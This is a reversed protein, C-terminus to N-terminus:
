SSKLGPEASGLKPLWVAYSARDQGVAELSVVAEPSTEGPAFLSELNQFVPTGSAVDQGMTGSVFTRYTFLPGPFFRERVRDLLASIESLITSPANPIAAVDAKMKLSIKRSRAQYSLLFSENEKLTFRVQHRSLAPPVGSRCSQNRLPPPRPM